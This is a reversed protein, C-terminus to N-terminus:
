PKIIGNAQVKVLFINLIPIIEPSFKSIPKGVHEM